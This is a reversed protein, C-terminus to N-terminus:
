NLGEDGQRLDSVDEESWGFESGDPALAVFQRPGDHAPIHRSVARLEDFSAFGNAKAFEEATQHAPM